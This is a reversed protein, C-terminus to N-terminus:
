NMMSNSRNLHQAEQSDPYQSALQKLLQDAQLNYGRQRYVQALQMLAAPAKNSAAPDDIIQKLNNIAAETKGLAIQANALWYRANAAYQHDPNSTLFDTFGTEAAEVKGSALDSFASLYLAASDTALPLMVAPAETQPSNGAAEPMASQPRGQQLLILQQQLDRLQAAQIQQQEKISDLQSKLATSPAMTMSTPQACSSIFIAALLLIPASKLIAFHHPKM